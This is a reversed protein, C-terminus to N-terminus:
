GWNTAVIAAEPLQPKTSLYQELGGVIVEHNLAKEFVKAKEEGRGIVIYERGLTELIKAYEQAITGAGIIWIKNM